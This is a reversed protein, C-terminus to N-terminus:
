ISDFPLIECCVSKELISDIKLLLFSDLYCVAGVNIFIMAGNVILDVESDISKVHKVFSLIEYSRTIVLSILLQSM